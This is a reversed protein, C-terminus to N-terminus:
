IKLGVLEGIYHMDLSEEILDALADFQTEKFAGYAFASEGGPRPLTERAVKRIFRRRFGDNDFIGHIYTGWVKGDESVAGDSLACRKGSKKCIKFLPEGSMLRTRGMHIEYGRLTEPLRDEGTRNMEEAEVQFTAKRKAFRTEMNLLGLGDISGLTSEVSLPDNITRGLMQFGGCIGVITSGRERLGRIAEGYGNCKLFNLDEITNKSGPIIIV